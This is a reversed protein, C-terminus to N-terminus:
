KERVEVIRRVRRGEKDFSHKWLLIRDINMRQQLRHEYSDPHDDKTRDIGLDAELEEGTYARNAELDDEAEKIAQDLEDTKVKLEEQYWGTWNIQYLLWALFEYLYHQTRWTMVLKIALSQGAPMYMIDLRETYDGLHARKQINFDPSLMYPYHEDVYHSVFGYMNQDDLRRKALWKLYKKLRHKIKKKGVRVLMADTVYHEIYTKILRKRSVQSLADQMTVISNKKFQKSM